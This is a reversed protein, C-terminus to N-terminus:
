CHPDWGMVSKIKVICMGLIGRMILASSAMVRPPYCAEGYSRPKNLALAPTLTWTSRSVPRWVPQCNQKLGGSSLTEHKTHHYFNILVQCSRSNGLLCGRPMDTLSNRSQTLYFLYIFLFVWELHPPSM